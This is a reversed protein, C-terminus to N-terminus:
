VDNRIFQHLEEHMTAIWSDDQLAEDVKKLKTQVLYCSYSVQNAVENSPQIVRNRLRRGEEINGIVQQSPHNLKVWSRKPPNTSEDEDESSSATNGFTVIESPNLLSDAASPIVPTKSSSPKIMDTSPTPLEEPISQIEEVKSSAGVEEVDIVVNTSEM